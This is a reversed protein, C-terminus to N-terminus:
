DRNQPRSGHMELNRRAEADGPDLRLAETFHVAAQDLKGQRALVVGLKTHTDARGPNLRLAEIYQAEAERLKGQISFDIGLNHHADAFHPNIKLAQAYHVAAEEFKGQRSLVVGLNYQADIYDPNLALARAFQAAAAELNGERQFVIGMFNQAKFDGPNLQIAEANHAAAPDLKGQSYLLIAMNYHADSSDGAGHSFAHNWMAESNRWTRCQDWTMAILGALLGLGLITMGMAVPRARLSAQWVRCFCGAVVAVWGLTALYSYRDAAIQGSFPVIGSNPALLVLYTLWAALLGPWRRRLIVLGISLGLTGVIRWLFGPALWNPIRPPPYVAALDLPLLTKEINFWIAYCTQAVSRV